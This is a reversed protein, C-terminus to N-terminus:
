GELCTLYKEAPWKMIKMRVCEKPRITHGTSAQTVCDEIEQQLLRPMIDMHCNNARRNEINSLMKDFAPYTM